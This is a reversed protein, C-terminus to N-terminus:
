NKLVINASINIANSYIKEQQILHKIHFMFMNRLLLICQCNLYEMLQKINVFGYAGTNANDSIQQKEAIRIINSNSDLEIYSYIPPADVVTSYFVTNHTSNKFLDIIDEGYFTDCDIILSKDHYQYNNLIYEIGFLLTEAAGKTTKTLKILKLNILNIYKKSILESFGHNDFESKYIIFVNDEKENVNINSLVHEIMTKDFIQILPKPNTYGEKNFREGKGGIPIIINM